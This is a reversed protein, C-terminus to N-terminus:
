PQRGRRVAASRTVSRRWDAADPCTEWHTPHAATDIVYIDRGDGGLTTVEIPVPQAHGNLPLRRGAITEAWLIPAHCSRCESAMFSAYVRITKM